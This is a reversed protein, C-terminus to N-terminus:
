DALAALFEPYSRDAHRSLEATVEGLAARLEPSAADAVHGLLTVIEGILGAAGAAPRARYSALLSQARLAVPSGPALLRNLEPQHLYYHYLLRQGKISATLDALVPALPGAGLFASGGGQLAADGTAVGCLKGLADFIDGVFKAVDSIIDGFFQAVCKIADVLVVGAQYLLNALTKAIDIGGKVFQAFVQAANSGLWSVLWQGFDGQQFAQEADALNLDIQVNFDVDGWTFQVQVHFFAGSAPPTYGQCVTTGGGQSGFAICANASPLPITIAPICGWPGLTINPLSFGVSASANFQGQAPNFVCAFQESAGLFQFDAFFEFADQTAVACLSDKILGGFLQVQGNICFYANSLSIGQQGCTGCHDNCYGSATTDVCASAGGTGDAGSIQLLTVGGVQLQWPQLQGGVLKGLSGYGQVKVPQTNTSLTFAFDLNLDYFSINGTAGIGPNYTKGTKPDTFPSDVVWISLQQFSIGNLLPVSSLDLSPIFDQVLQPLTVTKGADEPQLNALIAAPVEFDLIGGALELTVANPSGETGIVFDGELGLTLGEASLGFSVGFGNIELTPIGFPHSWPEKALGGVYISGNLSPEAGGYNFDVSGKLTLSEWVATVTISVESTVKWDLLFQQFSFSNQQVPAELDATLEVNSPTDKPIYGTLNLTTGAPFFDALTALNGQLALAALFTLGPDIEDPLFAPKIAEFASLDKQTITSVFLGGETFTLSQLAPWKSFPQWAGTVLFGALFGLSSSGAAAEGGGGDSPGYQVILLGEAAATNLSQGDFTATVTATLTVEGAGPVADLEVSGGTIVVSSFPFTNLVSWAQGLNWQGVAAVTLDMEVNDGSPKFVLTLTFTDLPGDQIVGKITAVNDQCTYSFGPNGVQLSGSLIQQIATAIETGASGFTGPPIAISTGTDLKGLIGCIDVASM